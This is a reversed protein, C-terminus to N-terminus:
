GECTPATGNWFFNVGDSECVREYDGGMLSYGRDCHYCGRTGVEFPATEDLIFDINGNNPDPLDECGLVDVTIAAHPPFSLTGNTIM